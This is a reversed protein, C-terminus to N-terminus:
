IGCLWVNFKMQIMLMKVGQILGQVIQPTVVPDLQLIHAQDKSLMCSGWLRRGAIWVNELFSKLLIM